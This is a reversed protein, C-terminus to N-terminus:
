AAAAKATRTRFLASFLEQMLTPRHALLDFLVERDIRLALGEEMVRARRGIGVGALTEYVGLADGAAAAVAPSGEAELSVKGAVIVYLAAPHEEQFLPADRTLRVEQTVGALELLDDSSARAFVPILRLALVREIPLLGGAMLKALEDSAGGRLVLRGSAFEPNELVTRFLGEALDSNDILLQLCQETTM